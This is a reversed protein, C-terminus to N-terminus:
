ISLSADNRKRSLVWEFLTRSVFVATFMNSVLGIVLTVAFGKIPGSGFLFLFVASILAALHTDVLTIFVRKFGAAVAAAATRGARLEERIREFILVNSDIGVGITLTIGAIGPLTLTIDFYAMAALLVVVNLLMSIVANLGSLRYYSLMFVVVATMAVASARVGDRISDAGLTASVKEESGYRVSAPLAGSRLLLALDRAEKVGYGAPGGKIIGSDSIRGDIYPASQITGDLVIALQRGINRETLQAFRRSGDSKLNFGVAPKGNEDRSVFADKLDRGTIESIRQVLYHGGSNPLSGKAPLIELDQPLTGGRSAKATAEDPFPGGAVLKLQLLAKSQLLDKVRDTDNFNPLQVLIEYRGRPSYKQISPEAVGLGDIRSRILNITQDVTENRLDKERQPRLRATYSDGSEAKQVEWDPLRHGLVDRLTNDKAPDVSVTFASTATRSLQLPTVHQSLLATRLSEIAHDTEAEIADDTIVELEYRTGGSLDLGLHINRKVSSWHPPFGAFVL